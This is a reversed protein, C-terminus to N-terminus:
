HCILLVLVVVDLPPGYVLMAGPVIRQIAEAMVHAASHRILYLADPDSEAEGKRATVIAVEADRDITTGLDSLEGDIRAGIASAALGPGIDAAVQAPTVPGDFVRESGDPLTIRPM